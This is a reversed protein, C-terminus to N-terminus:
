HPSKHVLVECIKRQWKSPKLAFFFTSESRTASRINTEVTKPSEAAELCPWLQRAAEQAVINGAQSRRQNLGSLSHTGPHKM